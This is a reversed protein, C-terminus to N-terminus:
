FFEPWIFDGIWVAAVFIPGMLKGFCPLLPSGALYTVFGTALVILGAGYEFCNTACFSIMYIRQISRFKDSDRVAGGLAMPVRVSVVLTFLNLAIAALM